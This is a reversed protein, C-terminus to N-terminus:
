HLTHAAVFCVGEKHTELCLGFVAGRPGAAKHAVRGGGHRLIGCQNFCELVRNATDRTERGMLRLLGDELVESHGWGSFLANALASLESLIAEEFLM